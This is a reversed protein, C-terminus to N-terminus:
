KGPFDGNGRDRRVPLPKGRSKEAASRVERRGKGVVPSVLPLPRIGPQVPPAYGEIPLM